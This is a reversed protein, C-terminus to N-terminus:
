SNEQIQKPDEGLDVISKWFLIDLRTTPFYVMHPSDIGIFRSTNEYIKRQQRFDKIGTKLDSIITSEQIPLNFELDFISHQDIYYNMKRNMGKIVYNEQKTNPDTKRQMCTVEINKLTDWTVILIIQKQNDKAVIQLHHPVCTSFLQCIEVGQDFQINLETFQNESDIDDNFMSEDIKAYKIYKGCQIILLDSQTKTQVVKQRRLNL